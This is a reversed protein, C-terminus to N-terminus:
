REDVTIRDIFDLSGLSRQCAEVMWPDDTGALSRLLPKIAAPDGIRGLARAASRRTGGNPDNLARVLPEVARRDGIAGLAEAARERVGGSSDGRLADILPPVAAEGMGGLMKAANKRDADRGTRLFSVLSDFTVAAAGDDAPSAVPRAASAAVLIAAFVARRGIGM